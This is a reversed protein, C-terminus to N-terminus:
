WSAPLNQPPAPTFPEAPPLPEPTCDCAPLHAPNPATCTPAHVHAALELTIGHTACALVAEAHEPDTAARRRWQVTPPTPCAACTPAAAAFTPEPM